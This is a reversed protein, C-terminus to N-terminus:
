HRVLAAYFSSGAIGVAMLVEVVRTAIRKKPGQTILKGRADVSGVITQEEVPQGVNKAGFEQELMRM